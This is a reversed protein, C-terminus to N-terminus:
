RSRQCFRLRNELSTVRKGWTGSLRQSEQDEATKTLKQFGCLILLRLSWAVSIGSYEGDIEVATVTEVRQDAAVAVLRPQASVAVVAEVGPILRQPLLGQRVLRTKM